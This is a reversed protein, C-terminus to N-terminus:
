MLTWMVADAATSSGSSGMAEVANDGARLTVPWTFIRDASTKQGLSTGNLFLEVTTTNAYVKVTTAAATRPNWRRSTIYVMPASSWNAKYWFFSDKKTKRDYTVLGKDNRGPTDGENRSDVAFDFMNWIFKAWLFPRTKMAAWHAEHLISQYEEPHVLGAADPQPPNEAHQTIAGGGGFESVAIKWTPEMAHLNDAWAGFQSATGFAPYWGFYENYGVVQTHAPLAGTDSTCCQAYTSLRNPDETQVTAALAALLANTPADDTRQENGISWFVIAPHNYNQRILELLQQKANDSFPTSNTIANVLPIEAWVVMGTRDCLDYFHSAHEYHALRIATAGLEHILSMDEDHEKNTIAWGLGLRDQHRNVGHLDLYRGNLSFGRNADVAFSRFGTTEAVWDSTRVGSRLETYATYVYPDALGDWLHPNAITTTAALETTTGPPVSGTATLTAAITQDAGVLATNVTVDHAVVDDNRVRTRARWNASAASVNTADLYVGPSANDMTDIHVADTVLWHVDRYLGGFFTFDANLPAVDTVASNDVKVAIVNDGPKIAATVDFRFRAFGGRHEGIQTGNVFVDTVINAGDFQLYVRRGSVESGATVHRRYWGIGRYYNNGGDQGDLNNWTHPLTVAGWAADNFAAAGAGAVDTRMFKWADDVLTDARAAPPVVYISATSADASMASGAQGASGDVASMSADQGSGGAAAGAGAADPGGARGAGGSATNGGIGAGSVGGGGGTGTTNGSDRRDNQQGSGGMAPPPEGSREGSCAALAVLAIARLGARLIRHHLGRPPAAPAGAGREAFRDALMTDAPAQCINGGRSLANGV